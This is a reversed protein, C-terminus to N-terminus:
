SSCLAVEEYVRLDRREVSLAQQWLKAHHAPVTVWGDAARQLLHEAVKVDDAYVSVYGDLSIRITVRSGCLKAPVSYRNGRVDIYGDWHVFRHERYSTDYRVPPLPALYSAEREFREIVVEKVTGHVRRDAEEELWKLALQNMHELSEFERYRVFFNNKIYGVMREDKGKTRARRPRCARPTFGYHDAFDVFRANFKVRCGLRHSIVTTKQNDVLVEQTVGGFHEFARVIGEYTHEADERDTCWFHFRRSFGLTNVSFCVKTPQGAVVTTREGWDNQLQQGPETEFRVTARSERLPRKPHIYARLISTGGMYGRLQIERFIVM